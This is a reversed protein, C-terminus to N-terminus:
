SPLSFVRRRAMLGLGALAALFMPLATPIPIPAAPVVPPEDPPLLVVDTSAILESTISDYYAITGQGPNADPTYVVSTFPFFPELFGELNLILHGDTQLDWSAQTSFVSTLETPNSLDVPLFFFASDGNSSALCNSISDCSGSESLLRISGVEELTDTLHVNREVIAAAAPGHGLLGTLFLVLLLSTATKM